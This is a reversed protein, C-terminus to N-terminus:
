QCQNVDELCMPCKSDVLFIPFSSTVAASACFRNVLTCLCRGFNITFGAASVREWVAPILCQETVSALGIPPVLARPSLGKDGTLVLMGCHRQAVRGSYKRLFYDFLDEFVTSVLVNAPTSATLVLVLLCGQFLMQHHFWSVSEPFGM